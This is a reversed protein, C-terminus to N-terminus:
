GRKNVQLCLDMDELYFFYAEDFGGVEFFVQRKIMLCASSLWPVARPRDFDYHNYQLRFREDNVFRSLWRSGAFFMPLTLYQMYSRTPRGQSNLIKPDVIGIEDKSTLTRYLTSITNERVLTESNLFLLADGQSLRAGINNARAFGLNAGNELLKVWPFFARLMEVSGDTSGNDVVMVEYPIEGLGAPITELCGKLLAKTNYKVIIISVM